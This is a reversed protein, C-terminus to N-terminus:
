KKGVVIGYVTCIVAYPILMVLCVITTHSPLLASVLMLVGMVVTLNGIFRNIRRAKDIDADMNKVYDFKPMYNGMVIFMVGLMLAVSKGVDINWGLSFGVTLTQLIFSMIPIIWKVVNEFKRRDGHRYANVDNIICCIVQLVVMMVPLGLVAFEKSAFNDPQNHINFHVAMSDPLENWVSLGVFVSLLCIISTIIMSKWKIYKM